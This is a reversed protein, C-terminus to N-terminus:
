RLPEDRELNSIVFSQIWFFNFLSEPLDIENKSIIELSSIKASSRSATFHSFLTDGM